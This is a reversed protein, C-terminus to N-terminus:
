SFSQHFSEREARLIWGGEAGTMKGGGVGKRERSGKREGVSAGWQRQATVLSRQPLPPSDQRHAKGKKILPVRQGRHVQGQRPGERGPTGSGGGM